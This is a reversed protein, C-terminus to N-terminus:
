DGEMEDLLTDFAEIEDQTAPNHDVPLAIIFDAMASTLVAPSAWAIEHLEVRTMPCILAM